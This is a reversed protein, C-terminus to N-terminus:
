EPRLADMPAIRSARWAPLYCAAVAVLGLGLVGAAWTTPDLRDVGFLLSAIFRTAPIAAALGVALGIAVVAAGQRVVLWRVGGPTAGLATRLGIERTRRATVYAVVAYIGVTALLLAALAAATLLVSTATTHVMSRGILAALPRPRELPLTPALERVARLVAPILRSPEDGTRLVMNLTTPLEAARPGSDNLPFYVAPRPEDKLSTFRVSGVVGVIVSWDDYLDNRIRKGLASQGPWWRRAFAEDVVVARYGAGGDTDRLTRGEIVPIGLAEHYGGDIYQYEAMPPLEGPETPHDEIALSSNQRVLGFPINHVGGVAEVGPVAALRERLQRWLEVRRAPPYEAAPLEIPLVLANEATFGPGVAVLSRFSRVMLGAGVLLVLALAVQAVILGNGVRVGAPRGTTAGRLLSAVEHRTALWVPALALLGGVVLTLGAVLALTPAGVGVQALGPISPPALDAAARVAAIGLAGGIVAGALTLLLSEALFHRLLAGRDAGLAMRVGVEDRRREFRVLFLNAVNACGILLLLVATALVVLMPAEAEGVVVEKLPLVRPAFGAQELLGPSFVEPFRDDVQYLLRGLEATAAELDTGEALRALAPYVLQGPQLDAPDVILPKWLETDESPLMVERPAIGVVRHAVGDVRLPRDLVAPDRGFRRSWANESLVVVPEGGPRGEEPAFFRGAVPRVGLTRFFAATVVAADVRVPEADGSVGVKAEDYLAMGDFVRQGERVHEFVGISFPVEDYGLGPATFGISLLRDPDPYPLPSILVRDVVAFVAVVAGITVALTALVVGTFLPTRALRRLHLGPTTMTMPDNRPV